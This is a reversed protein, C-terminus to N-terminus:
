LWLKATFLFMSKEIEVSKEFGNRKIAKPAPSAAEMDPPMM